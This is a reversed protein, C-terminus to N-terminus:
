DDFKIFRGERSSQIAAHAIKLNWLGDEATVMPEKEGKVMSLFDKLEKKLPEEPRVELRRIDYQQPIRSLDDLDLDMTSSKSIQLSQTIYDMEVFSQDCTLFVKRVKMPTLWNVELHAITGSDFKLLMNAHDEFQTQGSSGVQAYVGVVPRGILYRIVDIDHIGLDMVVGVDRIRAPFSSVRRSSLSVVKGFKDKDLLDKCFAVVPNYREIHGVMLRSGTEEAIRILEQAQEVTSCMPKEVMVHKGSRLAKSAIDFHTSTPTAISVGQIGPNKLVSDMDDTSEVGYRSAVREVEKKNADAVVVLDSIESLVRAHNQGMSGIGIVATKVMSTPFSCDV